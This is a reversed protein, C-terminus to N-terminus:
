LFEFAICNQIFPFYCVCSVTAPPEGSGDSVTFDEGFDCFISGMVGFTDATIFKIGNAHCFDGISAAQLLPYDILVVCAFQLINSEDLPGDLISVPM